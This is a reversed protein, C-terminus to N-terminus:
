GSRRRRVLLGTVALGLLTASGPEPIAVLPGANFNNIIDSATLPYIEKPLDKIANEIVEDTLSQQLAAAIHQWDSLTAENLLRRDLDKERFNFTYVNKLNHGTAKRYSTKRNCSTTSNNTTVKSCLSNRFTENRFAFTSLFM